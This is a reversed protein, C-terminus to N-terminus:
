EICDRAVYMDPRVPITDIIDASEEPERCDTENLTIDEDSNTAPTAQIRTRTGSFVWRTTPSTCMQDTSARLGGKPTTYYNTSAPTM